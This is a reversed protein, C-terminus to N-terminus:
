GNEQASTRRCSVTRTRLYAHQKHDMLVEGGGGLYGAFLSVSVPKPRVARVDDLELKQSAEVIVLWCKVISTWKLM